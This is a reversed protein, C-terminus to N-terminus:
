TDLAIESWEDACRWQWSDLIVVSLAECGVSAVDSNNINARIASAITVHAGADIAAQRGTSFNAINTLACCGYSAVDSTSEHARMAAIITATADAAVAAQQGAPLLAIFRLAACGHKAVDSVDTHTRMAAVIVAAAGADIAEQRDIRGRFAKFAKVALAADEPFNRLAAVTEVATFRGVDLSVHARRLAHKRAAAAEKEREVGAREAALATSLEAARGRTRELDEELARLLGVSEVRAALEAKLAACVPKHARWDQKQCPAGCYYAFRCPGCVGTSPAGCTACTPM